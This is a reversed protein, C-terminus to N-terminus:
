RGISGWGWGVAISVVVKIINEHQFMRYMEVERMADAVAESGFPCRIKKLAFQRGTSVDQVLYVFSFGGEGLLKVVKFTRRNIHLTPNPFCCSTIGYLTDRLAGFM